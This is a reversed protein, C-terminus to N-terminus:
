EALDEVGAGQWVADQLGQIRCWMDMNLSRFSEYKNSSGVVPFRRVAIAIRDVIVETGGRQATVLRGRRSLSLVRQHIRLHLCSTHRRPEAIRTGDSNLSVRRIIYILAYRLGSGIIAVEASEPLTETTRHGLLPSSRTGQLWFSLCPDPHPFGPYPTTTDPSM